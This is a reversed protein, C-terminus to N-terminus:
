LFGIEMLNIRILDLAPAVMYYYKGININYLLFLDKYVITDIDLYIIKDVDTILSSLGLRIYLPGPKIIIM